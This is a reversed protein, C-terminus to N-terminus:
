NSRCWICPICPVSKVFESLHPLLYVRYEPNSIILLRCQFRLHPIPSPPYTIIRYRPCTGQHRVPQPHCPLPWFSECLVEGVKIHSLFNTFTCVWPLDVVTGIMPFLLVYGFNVEQEENKVVVKLEKTLHALQCRPGGTLLGVFM